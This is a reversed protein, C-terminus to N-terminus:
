ALNDHDPLGPAERGLAGFHAGSAPM